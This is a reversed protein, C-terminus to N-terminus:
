PLIAPKPDNMGLEESLQAIAAEIQDVTIAEIKTPADLGLLRARREAIKLIRDIAALVPGHDRLPLGTDPHAVVRGQSVTIHETVMVTWAERLILDLRALEIARLERAPEAIVKMARSCAMHAGSADAYGLAKAIDGYSMGTSRLRAAEADREAAEATKVFRGSGSNRTRPGPDRSGRGKVEDPKSM